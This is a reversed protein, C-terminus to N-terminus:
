LPEWEHAGQDPAAGFYPLGVGAGDDWSLPSDVTITGADYDVDTIVVAAAQGELQIMDGEVLDDGDTFYGADEVTLVTSDAGAGVTHTLFVGNDVCPSAAQLHFDFVEFDFPDAEGAISSFAPDGAEEWNGAVDQEELDVYYYYIGGLQNEHFVNNKIAVGTMPNHQDDDVWRALMLGYKTPDWTELLPYGNHFFVNHCIFNNSADNNNGGDVSLTVGSSDNYYFANRRVINRQTRLSLGTSSDQDPPVGSFAISNGEILNRINGDPASANLIV